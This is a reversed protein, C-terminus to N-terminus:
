EPLGYGAAEILRYAAPSELYDYFGRAAANSTSRSLLVVQQEIPAYLEPPILFEQARFNVLPLQSMAVLGADANRSAVFSMTQGIDSGYVLNSKWDAEGRLAGLVQRAAEGYPAMNPDAIAIRLDDSKLTELSAERRGRVLLVLQGTAYTKRRAALGSDELAKPRATDAALVLDFPAGQVVQAYLKGTSGSVLVITHGSDREYAESLLEATTLFNAAVAVTATEARLGGLSALMLVLGSFITRLLPM